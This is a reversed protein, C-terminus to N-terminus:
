QTIDMSEIVDYKITKQKLVKTAGPKFKYELEIKDPQVCFNPVIPGEFVTTQPKIIVLNLSNGSANDGHMGAHLARQVLAKADEETQAFKFDRELVSIAAYSGSGESAFPKAMSVGHASLEYLFSGTPDVGGVLLYAGVYGMYRYLHQKAMRVATIVRAKKGSNLEQLRLNASLMKAVQDLDAATGAGCCYISETLKHVKMCNKDAVINGQTARSDAGMVVGGQFTAAVITTGTSRAAPVRAGMKAMAMNRQTNSFDFGPAGSIGMSLTKTDCCNM